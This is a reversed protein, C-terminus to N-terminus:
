ITKLCKFILLYIRLNFLFTRDLKKYSHNQILQSQNLDNYPIKKKINIFYIFKNRKQTM